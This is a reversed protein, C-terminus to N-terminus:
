KRDEQVVFSQQRNLGSRGLLFAYRPSCSRSRLLCDLDDPTDIDTALGGLQLVEADIRRAVAAALHSLFSGVGFNPEIIDPPSLLLANTGDGDRSPVLAIRPRERASSSGVVTEI